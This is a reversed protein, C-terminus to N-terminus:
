SEVANRRGDVGRHVPAELAMSATDSAFAAAAGPGADSRTDRSAQAFGAAAEEESLSSPSPPPLLLLLFVRLLLLRPWPAARCPATRRCPACPAACRPM